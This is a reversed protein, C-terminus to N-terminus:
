HQDNFGVMNCYMKLHVYGIELLEFVVCVVPGIDSTVSRRRCSPISSTCKGMSPYCQFSLKFSSNSIFRLNCLDTGLVIRPFVRVECLSNMPNM